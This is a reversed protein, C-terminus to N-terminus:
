KWKGGQGKGVMGMREVSTSGMIYWEIFGTIIMADDTSIALIRRKNGKVNQVFRAYFFPGQGASQLGFTATTRTAHKLQGPASVQTLARYLADRDRTDECRIRRREDRFLEPIEGEKEKREATSDELP